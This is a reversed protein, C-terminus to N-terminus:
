NFDVEKLIWDVAEQLSQVRTDPESRPRPENYGHDILITRCGAAAGADVDRWRDGILFSNAIDVDHTAAAELLLGPRPKRCQCNDSDDHYCVFFGDLPLQRALWEHITEVEKRSAAGRRVDPQNTVVLLLFGAKKLRALSNGVDDVLRAEALSIPPCPTGDRMVSENIVGDRDLFVACRGNLDVGM